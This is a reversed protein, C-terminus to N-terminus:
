VGEKIFFKRVDFNPCTKKVGKLDCHGLTEIPGFFMRAAKDLQKLAVLQAPNPYGNGVICTGISNKNFGYAHAGPAQINRGAHLSGDVYIVFHYGIDSWGNGKPKPDTHWKKIDEVTTHRGEPTDSCHIIHQTIDRM